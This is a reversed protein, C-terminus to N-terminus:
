CNRGTVIRKQYTVFLRRYLLPNCALLLEKFDAVIISGIALLQMACTIGENLTSYYSFSEFQSDAQCAKQMSISRMSVQSVKPYTDNSFKHILVM